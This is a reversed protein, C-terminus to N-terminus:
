GVQFIVRAHILLIAFKFRLKKSATGLVSEVRKANYRRSLDIGSQRTMQQIM